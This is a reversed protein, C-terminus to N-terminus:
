RRRTVIALNDSFLRGRLLGFSIAQWSVTPRKPIGGANTYHFAPPEFGTEECLRRLDMRLLATIHAPYCSGLFQTFHGAVILGAYSRISEQNPMTLVLAGGPRLFRAITRFVHRPNELHEITESCVVVDFERSLSFPENLDHQHWGISAPLAAPREFLDIGALEDFTGLNNLRQLLEGRGAGFDLLSGRLGEQALRDLVLSKIPESSRGGSLESARRRFAGPDPALTL